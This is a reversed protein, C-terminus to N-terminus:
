ASSRRRALWQVLPEDGHDVIGGREFALKHVVRASADNGPHIQALVEVVGDRDFALRLLEGVAATAAGQNRCAVSIGYGIEVRGAVPAHKFGCSGVVLQDSDRVIYFTSAASGADGPRLMALARLAVFPPPLADAAIHWALGCPRASVALARLADPPIAHLTFTM